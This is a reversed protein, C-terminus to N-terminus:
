PHTLIRWLDYYRDTPLKKSVRRAKEEDGRMYFLTALDAIATNEDMEILSCYSSRSLNGNIGKWEEPTINYDLVSEM